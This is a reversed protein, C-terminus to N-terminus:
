RRMGLPGSMIRMTLDRTPLPLERIRTRTPVTEADAIGTVGQRALILRTSAWHGITHYATIM